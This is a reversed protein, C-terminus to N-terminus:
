TKKYLLVNFVKVKLNDDSLGRFLNNLKKKQIPLENWSDVSIIKYMFGCRSFILKMEELQIRNTYFGSSKFFNSEWVSESFRLNNLSESLHDRLDVEHSHVSDDKGVRFCEKMERVFIDKEVHELVAQSFIIDISNSDIKSFSDVGHTLYRSNCKKLISEVTDKDTLHPPHLDQNKLFNCLEIYPRVDNSIHDVSDILVASANYSAAIIATSIGDGPGIELIKKEELPWSNTKNMHSKFVEFAYTYNDMSGHRFLGFKSWFGYSIPLRSIIIKLMIKVQWPIKKKSILM